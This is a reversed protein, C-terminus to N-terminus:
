LSHPSESSGGVNLMGVIRGEATMVFSVVPTWRWKPLTQPVTALVNAMQGVTIAQHGRQPLNSFSAQVVLDLVCSLSPVLFMQQATFHAPRINIVDGVLHQNTM